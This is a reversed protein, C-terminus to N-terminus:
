EVGFHKRVKDMLSVVESKRGVRFGVDRPSEGEPDVPMNNLEYWETKMIYLHEQVILEAFAALSQGNKETMFFGAQEVLERIRENNM